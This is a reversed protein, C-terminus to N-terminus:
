GGRKCGVHRGDVDVRPTIGGGRAELYQCGTLADTRPKLNSRNGWQAPDSDDRGLPTMEIAVTCLLVLVFFRWLWWSWAKLDELM